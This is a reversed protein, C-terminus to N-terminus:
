RITPTGTMEILRFNGDGVYQLEISEFQRGIIHGSTGISTATRALYPQDAVQPTAAAYLNGDGSIAMTYAIGYENFPLAVSSWQDGGDNSLFFNRSGGILLTSGDGSMAIQTHPFDTQFVWIWSQGFDSSLYAGASSGPSSILIHQGNRSVAINDSPKQISSERLTWTLGFDESVAVYNGGSHISAILKSGDRTMVTQNLISGPVVVPLWSAGGDASKAHGCSTNAILRDGTISANLSMFNQGNCFTPVNTTTWNVGFDASYYLTAKSRNDTMGALFVKQGGDAFDIATVNSIRSESWTQGGDKSLIVSSGYSYGVSLGDNSVRTAIIRAPRQDSYSPDYPATVQRKFYPIRNTLVVQQGAKQVLKWGGAGVGSVRIVDFLSLSETSPLEVVVQNNDSQAAYGRNPSATISPESVSVWQLASPAGNCVYGSQNIESADLMQNTNTDPGSKVLLGGNACNPGSAEAAVVTLSSLGTAGASGQAGAPGQPGPDGQSGTPGQPGTNGQAGSPGAPGTPGTAGPVGNCVFSSSSLEDTDLINNANVDQGADIRTGGSPCNAGAAEVVMKTLASFGAAGRAGPLGPQGNAGTAGPSGNCVYQTNSIETSDLQGNGNRDLGTDVAIGGYTCISQPASNQVAAAVPISTGAVDSQTNAGGGGCASILGVSGLLALLPLGSRVAILARAHPVQSM